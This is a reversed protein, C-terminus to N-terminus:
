SQAKEEAFTRDEAYTLGLVNEKVEYIKFKKNFKVHKLLHEESTEATEYILVDINEPLNNVGFPHIGYIRTTSNAVDCKEILLNHVAKLKGTNKTVYAMKKGTNKAIEEVIFTYLEMKTIGAGNSQTFTM